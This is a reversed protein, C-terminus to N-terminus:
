AKRRKVWDDIFLSGLQRLGVVLYYHPPCEQGGWM